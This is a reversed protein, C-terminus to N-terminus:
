PQDLRDLQSQWYRLGIPFSAIAMKWTHDQGDAIHVDVDQARELLAAAMAKTERGVQGDVESGPIAFWVALPNAAITDITPIYGLPTVADIEAQNSKMNQGAEGPGGYPMISLVSAFQDPHRLAQDIACYGGMSMGGIAIARRDTAVPFHNEAWPKVVDYLFTEVQSGGPKTSDLCGSDPAGRAGVGPAVAIVPALEGAAIMQDLVAPGGSAMWDQSAGPSGHILYIVPYAVRGSPDYGPPTYVWATNDALNLREPAPLSFEKAGGAPPPNTAPFPSPRSLPAQSGIIAEAGLQEQAPASAALEAQDGAAHGLGLRIRVADMNPLWGAYWNAVTGLGLVLSLSGATCAIWRLTKRVRVVQRRKNLLWVATALLAAGVLSLGIGFVPNAFFAVEPSPQIAAGPPAGGPLSVVSV